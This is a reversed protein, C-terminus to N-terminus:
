GAALPDHAPLPGPALEVAPRAAAGLRAVLDDATRTGDLLPLLAPLLKRVAAGELVVVVQAHELLLRDGDGVLRYWPALLPREPIGSVGATGSLQLQLHLRLELLQLLRHRARVGARRRRAREDDPGSAGPDVPR